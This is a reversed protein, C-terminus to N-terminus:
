EWLSRQLEAVEEPLELIVSDGSIEYTTTPYLKQLGKAYIELQSMYMEVVQIDEAVVQLKMIKGMSPKVLKIPVKVESGERDYSAKLEEGVRFRQQRLGM